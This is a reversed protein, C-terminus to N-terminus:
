YKIRYSVLTESSRRHRSHPKATPYSLQVVRSWLGSVKVHIYEATFVVFGPMWSTQWFSTITNMLCKTHLTNISSRRYCDHIVKPVPRNYGWSCKM